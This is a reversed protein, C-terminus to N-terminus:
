VRFIKLYKMTSGSQAPKKSLQTAKELVKPPIPDPRMWSLTAVTGDATGVIVECLKDWENYSNVKM